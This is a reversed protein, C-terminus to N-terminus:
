EHVFALGENSMVKIENALNLYKLTESIRKRNKCLHDISLSRYKSIKLHHDIGWVNNGHYTYIQIYGFGSLLAVNDENEELIKNALCSDEGASSVFGNSPYRYNFNDRWAMITGPILSYKKFNGSYFNSWDEWYLCKLDFYYHLQETLYCVKAKRNNSLFNYQIALREPMNFDDDDWQVFIDGSSLAISINRLSGLSYFGDLFVTKIDEREIIYNKIKEQYDKPGENVILLEKNPYTQDLYCNYSRKFYEFRDKATVLLCSIKPLNKKYIIM